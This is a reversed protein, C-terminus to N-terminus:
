GGQKNRHLATPITRRLHFSFDGRSAMTNATSLIREQVSCAFVVRIGTVVSPIM